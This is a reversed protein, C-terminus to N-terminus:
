LAGQIRELLLGITLWYYVLFAGSLLLLVASITGVHPLARRLGRVMAGRFVAISLTLALIVSGMGMGYLTFQLVSLLFTDATFTRGFLTFQLVSLLSTDVTFMRGFLTFQLIRDLFTGTTSTGGIVALFIPLTCSLSATGYGIGFTFYGRVGRNGAGSVKNSLRMALNNYLKGGSLLYAGAVALLVGISLGVWPFVDIIGRAGLAIPVGVVAFLLVFGATMTSGVVMSRRLRTMIGPADGEGSDDGVYLGLYAPLMAFGCPNVASVMGASFAFGLPFLNGVRSLFNGSDASVSEVGGVVGGVESGTILAGITAAGLAVTLAALPGLLDWRAQAPSRLIHLPRM